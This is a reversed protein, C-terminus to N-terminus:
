GTPLRCIELMKEPLPVGTCDVVKLESHLAHWLDVAIRHDLFVQCLDEDLRWEKTM